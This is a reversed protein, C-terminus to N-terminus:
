FYYIATVSNTFIDWPNGEVTTGLRFSTAAAGGQRDVHQFRVGAGVSGQLALEPVNMFGFSLEAGARAQIKGLMAFGGSGASFGLEVEPVVLFTLHKGGGLALPLGGHLALAFTQVDGMAGGNLEFGLGVAVDVGVDKVWREPLFSFPGRGDLWRRVGIAPAVVGEAGDPIRQAGFAGVGYRGTLLAHDGKIESTEPPPTFISRIAAPATSPADAPAQALSETPAALLAACLPLAILRKRLVSATSSPLTGTMQSPETALSDRPRGAGNRLDM